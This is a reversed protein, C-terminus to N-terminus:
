LSRRGYRQAAVTASIAVTAVLALALPAVLAAPHLATLADLDIQEWLSLRDALWLGGAAVILPIYMMPRARTFGLGFFLPLQVAITMLFFVLCALNVLALQFLPVQEGQVLSVAVAALTGVAALMLYLAILSVYRGLVVTRRSIPLTAYLTDLRGREDTAFTQPALLVMLAAAALVGFAPLPAFVAAAVVAAVSPLFRKLPTTTSMLDFTAFTAIM